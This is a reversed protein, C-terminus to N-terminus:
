KNKLSDCNVRILHICDTVDGNPHCPNWPGVSKYNCIHICPYVDGRPHLLRTCKKIEANSNSNTKVRNQLKNENSFNESSYYGMHIFRVRDIYPCHTNWITSDGLDKIFLTVPWYNYNYEALFRGAYEDAELEELTTGTNYNWDNETPNNLNARHGLAGHAWEHAMIFALIDIPKELASKDLLIAGGFNAYGWPFSDAYYVYFNMKSFSVLQNYIVKATYNKEQLQYVGNFYLDWQKFINEQKSDQANLFGIMFLMTNIFILTTIRIIYM